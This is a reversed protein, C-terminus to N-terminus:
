FRKGKVNIAKAQKPHIYFIFGKNVSKLSHQFFAIARGRERERVKTRGKVCEFVGGVVILGVM